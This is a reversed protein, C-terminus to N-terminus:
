GEQPPRKTGTIRDTLIGDVMDNLHMNKMSVQSWTDADYFSTKPQLIKYGDRSVLYPAQEAPDVNRIFDSFGDKIQATTDAGAGSLGGFIMIDEALDKFRLDTMGKTAIMDADIIAVNDDEATEVGQWGNARLRIVNTLLNTPSLTKISYVTNAYQRAADPGFHHHVGLYLNSVNRASVNHEAVVEDSQGGRAARLDVPPIGSYYVPSATLGLYEEITERSYATPMDVTPPHMPVTRYRAAPKDALHVLALGTKVVELFNPALRVQSSETYLRTAEEPDFQVTEIAPAASM